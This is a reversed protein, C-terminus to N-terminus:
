PTARTPPSSTGPWPSYQDLERLLPAFEPVENTKPGILHEALVTGTGHAAAALLYPILGDDGAAGRV